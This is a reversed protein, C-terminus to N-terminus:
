KNLYEKRKEVYLWVWWEKKVNVNVTLESLVQSV